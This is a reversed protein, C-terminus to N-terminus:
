RPEPVTGEETCLTPSPTSPAEHPLDPPLFVSLKTVSNMKCKRGVHGAASPNRNTQKKVQVMELTEISHTVINSRNSTNTKKAALCTPGLPGAVEVPDRM